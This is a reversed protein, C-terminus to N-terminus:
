QDMTACPPLVIGLVTCVSQGVLIRGFGHPFM